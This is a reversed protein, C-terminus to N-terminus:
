EKIKIIEASKDERKEELKELSRDQEWEYFFSLARPNPVRCVYTGKDEDTFLEYNRFNWKSRVFEENFEEITM